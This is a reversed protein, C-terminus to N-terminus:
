SSAPQSIKASATASAILFKKAQGSDVPAPYRRGKSQLVPIQSRYRITLFGAAFAAPNKSVSKGPLINTKYPNYNPIQIEM